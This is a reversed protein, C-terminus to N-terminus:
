SDKGLLYKEFAKARALISEHSEEAHATRVAHELAERRVESM